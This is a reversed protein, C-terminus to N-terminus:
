TAQADPDPASRWVNLRFVCPDLDASLGLWGRPKGPRHHRDQRQGTHGHPTMRARRDARSGLARRVERAGVCRARERALASSSRVRRYGYENLAMAGAIAYAIGGEELAAILKVLARHVDADGMFFKEAHKVGEWFAAEGASPANTTMTAPYSVHWGDGPRLDPDDATRPSITPSRAPLNPRSRKNQAAPM